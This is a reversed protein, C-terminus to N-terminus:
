IDFVRQSADQIACVVIKIEDRTLLRNVALRISPEPVLAEQKELYSPQVLAIKNVEKVILIIRSLASCKEDRTFQVSGHLKKLLIHKVPSLEHGSVYFHDLADLAKHFFKCKEQLDRVMLPNKEMLSLSKIGVGALLPPLSASFCYGLGSIRQHDVVFSPGVIFGGFASMAHELSGSILDLDRIPVDLYETIGRGTAGLVGFSLTEDVFIRVKSKRCMAAIEKLPCIEGTKSYIGEVVCFRRITKAKKPNSIDYRQQDELLEQLYSCDNHRFYKITSRSAQLGKQISFNVQEDAFIVDGAKAYSPIASAITSFGYSYLATEELGLFKAIKEELELHVDVTGYFGRPGCSGVGYKRICREAEKDLAPDDVLGLYNNTALNLYKVNNIVIHKGPRSEVSGWIETINDGKSFEDNNTPPVLPKPKWAKIIQEEEEFTLVIKAEPHKKKRLLLWLVWVILATELLVHYSPFLFNFLRAADEPLYPVVDEFVMTLIGIMM